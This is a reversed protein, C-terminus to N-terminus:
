KKWIIQPTGDNKFNSIKLFFVNTLVFYSNRDVMTKESLKTMLLTLLESIEVKGKELPTLKFFHLWFWLKCSLWTKKKIIQNLIKETTKVGASRHYWVQNGLYLPPVRLTVSFFSSFSQDQLIRSTPNPYGEFSRYFHLEATSVPPNNM